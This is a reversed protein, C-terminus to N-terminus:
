KQKQLLSRFKHYWSNDIKIWKDTTFTTEETRPLGGLLWRHKVELVVDAEKDGEELRVEDIRYGLIEAVPKRRLYEILSASKTVSVDSLKYETESDGKMRANWFVKVREELRAKDKADPTAGYVFSTSAILLFMACAISKVSYKRM